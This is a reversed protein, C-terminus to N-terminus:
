EEFAASGATTSAQPMLAIETAKRYATPDTPFGAQSALYREYIGSFGLATAEQAHREWLGIFVLVALAALALTGSGLLIRGILSLCNQMGFRCHEMM